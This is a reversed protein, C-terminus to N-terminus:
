TTLAIPLNEGLKEQYLNALADLGDFEMKGMHAQALLLIAEDRFDELRQLRRTMANYTDINVLVTTARGRQTLVVPENVVLALTKKTHARLDSVPIIPLIASM